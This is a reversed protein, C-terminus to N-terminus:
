WDPGMETDDDGEVTDFSELMVTEDSEAFTKRPETETIPPTESSNGDIMYLCGEGEVPGFSELVVTHDHERATEFITKQYEIDCAYGSQIIIMRLPAINNVMLIECFVKIQDAENLDRLTVVYKGEVKATLVGDENVSLGKIKFDFNAVKEKRRDKNEKRLQNTKERSNESAKLNHKAKQREEKKLFSANIDQAEQISKTIFEDPPLEGSPDKLGEWEKPKDMNKISENVEELELNIPLVQM